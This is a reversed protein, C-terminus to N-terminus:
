HVHLWARTAINRLTGQKIGYKAALIALKGDRNGRITRYEMLLARVQEENLKARGASSGRAQRGKAVCDARNENHTGVRLHDPNVCSPRDCTHMIVGGEPISGNVHEYAWRHARYTVGDRTYLGYGTPHKLGTWEWCGPGSKVFEHFERSPKGPKRKPVDFGAQRAQYRGTRTSLDFDEISHTKAM